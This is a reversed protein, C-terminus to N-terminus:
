QCANYVCQNSNCDENYYCHCGEGFPASTCSEAVIMSPDSAIESASFSAAVTFIPPAPAFPQPAPGIYVPSPAPAFPQPAPGIYVPSPAPAPPRPAPGVPSPKNASVQSEEQAPPTCVLGFPCAISTLYVVLTELLVVTIFLFLLAELEPDM